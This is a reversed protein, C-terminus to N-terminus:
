TYALARHLDFRHSSNALPLDFSVCREFLVYLREAEREKEEQTMEPLNDEPEAARHQGTVPNIDESDPASTSSAAMASQPVEIKHTALFGSAYGYGINHIFKAADSDSLEFLLTSINDRLSLLTPSVSFRLLQSPLTDDKGLPKSRAEDSPLLQKQMAEKVSPSAAAHYKRLLTLLPMAQQELESKPYSTISRELIKVLGQTNAESSCAEPIDLNMLANVTSSVPPQLPTSPLKIHILISFLNSVCDTFNVALEPKHATINFLLKLSEILAMEDM